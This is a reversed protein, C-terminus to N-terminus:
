RPWRVEVAATANRADGTFSFVTVTFLYNGAVLTAPPLTVSVASPAAPPLILSANTHFNTCPLRSWVEECAWAYALQSHAFYGFPVVM